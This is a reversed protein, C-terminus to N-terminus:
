SLRARHHAEPMVVPGREFSRVQDNSAPLIALRDLHSWHPGPRCGSACGVGLPQSVSARGQLPQHNRQHLEDGAHRVSRLGCGM